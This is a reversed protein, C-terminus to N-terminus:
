RTTSRTLNEPTCGTSSSGSCAAVACSEGTTLLLGLGQWQMLDTLRRFPSPFCKGSKKEVSKQKLHGFPLLLLVGIIDSRQQNQPFLDTAMLMSTNERFLHPSFVLILDDSM